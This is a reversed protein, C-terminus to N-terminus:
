DSLYFPQGYKFRSGDLMKSDKITDVSSFGKLEFQLKLGSDFKAIADDYLDSEYNTKLYREYILRVAWCCSDYQIGAFTEVSRNKILDRYYSSVLQYNNSLPWSLKSGIQDIEPEDLETNVYSYRYNIQALKGAEPRWELVANGKNVRFEKNSFEVGSNFAWNDAFNADFEMLLASSSSEKLESEASLALQSQKFYYNQGISFRFREEASDNLYRTTLGFTMQNADAIRDYGSFSRDRFLGYYDTKLIATDYIGIDDQNKYPIYLYQLQPELTQTYTSNFMSVQREFNLGGHLRFEPLTRSVHEKYVDADLFSVDQVYYSQILKAEGIMFGQPKIWPWLLGPEFHFRQATTLEESSNDFQVFESDLTFRFDSFAPVDMNFSVQPLMTYPDEDGGGLVEFNRLEMSLEWHRQLYQLQASQLLQNETSSNISSGLENFYNVDGVDTFDTNLRWHRSLNSDHKWHYMWRHEGLKDDHPMYEANMIGVSGESLYRFEGQLQSGRKSLLRPTFTADVQPAINWYYPVKLEIGNETSSGVSPFLFGSKRKDSIPYTFYPLYFVPVDYIKVVAHYAEAWESSSDIEIKEASVQWSNDGPPCATYTTESLEVDSRNKIKLNEAKGRGNFGYLQYKAKNLESDYSNLDSSLSEAKVAVMGDKYNIGGLAQLRKDQSNVEVVEAGLHRGGQDVSVKGSFSAKEDQKAQAKDASIIVPQEDIPGLETAERQPVHMYCRNSQAVLADLEKTDLENEAVFNLSEEVVEAVALYPVAMALLFVWFGMKM